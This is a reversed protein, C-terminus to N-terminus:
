GDLGQMREGATVLFAQWRLEHRGKRSASMRKIEAVTSVGPVFLGIADLAGAIGVRRWASERAAKVFLSDAAKRIGSRIKVAWRENDGQDLPPQATTIWQRFERILEDGRLEEVVPHFPGEPGLHEPLDPFLLSTVARVRASSHSSAMSSMIIANYSNGVLEMEQRSSDVIRDLVMCDFLVRTIDFCAAWLQGGLM